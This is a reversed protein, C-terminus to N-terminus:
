WLHTRKDFTVKFVSGFVPTNSLQKCSQWASHGAEWQAAPFAWPTPIVGAWLPSVAILVSRNWTGRKQRAGKLHSVTTSSMAKGLLFTGPSFHAEIHARTDGQRYITPHYKETGTQASWGNPVSKSTLLPLDKWWHYQQRFHLTNPEQSKVCIFWTNLVVARFIQGQTNGPVGNFVTLMLAWPQEAFTDTCVTFTYLSIGGTAWM